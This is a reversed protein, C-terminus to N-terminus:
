DTRRTTVSVLQGNIGVEIGLEISQCCVQCDEIYSTSGTSLDLQADFREGCYPCQIIVFQTGGDASTSTAQQPEYVPELGYLADIADPDLAPAKPDTTLPRRPKMTFRAAVM